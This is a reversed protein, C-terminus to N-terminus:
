LLVDTRIRSRIAWWLAGWVNSQRLTIRAEGTMGPRLTEGGGLRVRSEVMGERSAAAAVSSVAAEARFAPDAHAILRVRQGERALSAGAGDLAIRAEVAGSGVLRLLTDGLSVTQGVLTDPRPSDVIGEAPARIALSRVRDRLGGLRAAEARAEAAIRAAEGQRGKARAQAERVGLSDVTRSAAAVERELELNRILALPAGAVVRSGEQVLVEFVVGSDPAVLVGSTGPAAVFQGTVTIPWPALGAVAVAAAGAGIAYRAGRLKKGLTWRTRLERWADSVARRLNRRAGRTLFWVVFLLLAVGVAGFAQSLRGYAVIGLVLFISGIYAAALTAYLLFIRQEREDAPPMPLELGLWRSKITWALHAFARQRLNPVELWDSLAYYGDLPVLPNLNVLVATFGGVLFAALAADSVFTDPAAFWWVIAGLSGLVMQIWSGAATVWLRAKREPFTWADNVNCFFALEFYFLMAGIEHVQGGYHKCTYGHGLEHAVIILNGVVWFLVYDWVSARLLYIDAIARVFDPWKLALIVVQVVFLAASAILFGRTFCFRLYPITRDMFRDPDGVSWRLRLIDGKFPGTRLRTRRQARLREMLLVSRERLTRECLGLTKLKEAFRGVAAASVKLGQDVLAAAAEAVTRQGDLSQMVAIEVPRFRFYKRTSPDKVIFSQEGRYTQEVLVLDARLRPRESM